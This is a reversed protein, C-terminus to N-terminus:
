SPGGPGIGDLTGAAGATGAAGRVAPRSPGPDETVGRGTGDPPREVAPQSRGEWYWFGAGLHEWPPAATVRVAHVVGLHWDISAGCCPCLGAVADQVAKSPAEGEPADWVPEGPWKGWTQCARFGCIELAMDGDWGIDLFTARTVYSLLHMKEAPSNKFRYNIDVCRCAIGPDGCRCRIGLIRRWGRKIKELIEPPLYGADILCNLHPAWVPWSGDAPPDGFWHWRRMGRDIGNRQMLRTVGRGLRSLADKSRFRARAAPPITLVLYGMTELQLAKPLWRSIKRQHADSGKAGCEDCWERGCLLIKALQHGVEDEGRLAWRGHQCVFFPDDTSPLDERGPGDGTSILTHPKAKRELYRARVAQGVTTAPRSESAPPLAAIARRAPSSWTLDPDESSALEQADHWPGAHALQDLSASM